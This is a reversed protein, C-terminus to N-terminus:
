YGGSSGGGGSGGGGFGGFGGGGFGGGGFGGGGFGGIFPGGGIWPGGGRFGRGRGGRRFMSLVIALIIFIIFPGPLRRTRPAQTQPVPRGKLSELEVGEEKAVIQALTAVGEFYAEGRRQQSLLPTM